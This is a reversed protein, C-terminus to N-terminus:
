GIADVAMYQGGLVSESNWGLWRDLVCAYVQRFDTHYKLDGDELDALSPHAGIL